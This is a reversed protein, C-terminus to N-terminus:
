DGQRNSFSRILINYDVENIDGDDDLDANIRNGGCAASTAKTAFCSVLMNYDRVDNINDGNIDGVALTIEPITILQTASAITVINPLVKKLYRDSKIKVTYNGAPINAVNVTGTFKGTGTNYSLATPLTIGTGVLTNSANYFEVLINRQPTRISKNAFIGALNLTLSLRAGSATGTATPTPTNTAGPVSTATATPTLTATPTTGTATATPTNTARPRPTPTPVDVWGSCYHEPIYIAGPTCTPTPTVPCSCIAGTNTWTGNNCTYVKGTPSCGRAGHIGDHTGDCFVGALCNTEPAPTPTRTPAPCADCNSLCRDEAQYSQCYGGVPASCRYCTVGTARQRIDQPKQAVYITLPIALSLMVVALINLTKRSGFATEFFEVVRALLIRM